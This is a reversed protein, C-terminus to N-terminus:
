RLDFHLIVNKNQFPLIEMQFIFSSVKNNRTSSFHSITKAHKELNNYTILQINTPNMKSKLFISFM